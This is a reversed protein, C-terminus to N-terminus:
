KSSAKDNEVKKLLKALQKPGAISMKDTLSLKNYKAQRAEAAKRRDEKHSKTIPKMYYYEKDLNLFGHVIEVDGLM